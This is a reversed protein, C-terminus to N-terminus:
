VLALRRKLLVAIEPPGSFHRGIFDDMEGRSKASLLNGIEEMAAMSLAFPMYTFLLYPGNCQATIQYEPSLRIPTDKILCRSIWPSVTLTERALLRNRRGVFNV